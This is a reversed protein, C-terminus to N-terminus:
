ILTICDGGHRGPLGTNPNIWEVLGISTRFEKVDYMSVDWEKLKPTEAVM